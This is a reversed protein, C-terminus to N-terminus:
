EVWNSNSQHVKQARGSPDYGVDAWTENPIWKKVCRDFQQDHKFIEKFMERYYYEEKTKPVNFDFYHKANEMMLDTVQENAIEKLKDIWQYGVGDSFQEKRRWLLDHPLFEGESFTDRLIYKEMGNHINVDKGLSIYNNIMKTDLFPFRGELGFALTSKNARLNDFYQLEEVRKVCEEGFEENSPAKHFYLYGGFLEDSGEGSLVMKFGKAKIKRSLLFMPTSARITTVDYTELHWMVDRVALLAENLTIKISEHCTGLYDAVKQAADLDPSGEFGISFTHIDKMYNIGLDDMISNYEDGLERRLLKVSISTILSSDLGGSLLMAFPVNSQLRKLVAMILDHKLSKKLLGYADDNVKYHVNQPKLNYYESLQYYSHIGFNTGNYYSYCGAPFMQPKINNDTFAKIESSVHLYGEKDFGYYLSTVGFRDRVILMTDQEVDYIIFSFIGDLDNIFESLKQHFEDDSFNDCNSVKNIYHHLVVECDSNSQCTYNNNKILEKYNYIEGNITLYYKDNHNFPQNAENSIDIIALRHHALFVSDKEITYYCDPGRHNLLRQNQKMKTITDRDVCNLCNSGYIGCM